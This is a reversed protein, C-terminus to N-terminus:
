NDNLSVWCRYGNIASRRTIIIRSETQTANRVDIPCHQTLWFMCKFHQISKVWYKLVVFVSGCLCPYILQSLAFQFPYPGSLVLTLLYLRQAFHFSTDPVFRTLRDVDLACTLIQALTFFLAVYFFQAGAVWSCHEWELEESFLQLIRYLLTVVNVVKYKGVNRNPTKSSTELTLFRHM